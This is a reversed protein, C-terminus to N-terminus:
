IYVQSFINLLYQSGFCAQSEDVVIKIYLELGLCKVFVDLSVPLGKNVQTGICLFTSNNIFEHCTGSSICQKADLTQELGCSQFLKSLVTTWRDPSIAASL